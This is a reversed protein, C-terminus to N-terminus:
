LFVEPNSEITVPRIGSKVCQLDYFMDTNYHRAFISVLSEQAEFHKYAHNIYIEGEYSFLDDVGLSWEAFTDGYDFAPLTLTTRM